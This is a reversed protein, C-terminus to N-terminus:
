FMELVVTADADQQPSSPAANWLKVVVTVPISRVYFNIEPQHPSMNNCGGPYGCSGGRHIFHLNPVVVTAANPTMAGRSRLTDIALFNYGFDRANYAALSFQPRGDVDQGILRLYELYGGVEYRADITRTAPAISLSRLRPYYTKSDDPYEQTIFARDEVLGVLLLPNMLFRSEESPGSISRQGPGFFFIGHIGWWPAGSEIQGFVPSIPAYSTPILADLMPNSRLASIADIRHGIIADRSEGDFESMPQIPIEIASAVKTFTLLNRAQARRSRVGEMWPSTCVVYVFGVACAVAYILVRPKV